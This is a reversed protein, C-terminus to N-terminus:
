LSPLALTPFSIRNKWSNTNISLTKDAAEEPQGHNYQIFNAGEFGLTLAQSQKSTQSSESSTRSELFLLLTPSFLLAGHEGFAIMGPCM